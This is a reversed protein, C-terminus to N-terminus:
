QTEERMIAYYGLAFIFLDVVLRQMRSGSGILSNVVNGLLLGLLFGPVDVKIKKFKM